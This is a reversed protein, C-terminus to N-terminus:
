KQALGLPILIAGWFVAYFVATIISALIGEATYAMIAPLIVMLFTLVAIAVVGISNELINSKNRM